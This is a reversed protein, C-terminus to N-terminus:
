FIGMLADALRANIKRSKLSFRIFRDSLGQFNSCNRILIKRQLLQECVGAADLHQPLRALLFYTASPFLKLDIKGAITDEFLRREVYFFDRSRALFREIEKQNENLYLVAEHALANVSWPLQYGVFSRMLPAPAIIFGVRLGPIRFIKSMSNLVIVNPLRAKVLTEQEAERVFPLYSEDIVFRTEPHAKALKEVDGAAMLAGTPNVPNCFFVTDYGRVAGNLDSFQPVFNDAEATAHYAYEVGHMQCASAYDAYAPGVILARKVGIARPIAYIFQTTGNGALVCEPSVGYQNAVAQTIRKSDVEPLAIITDMKSALHAKLGEPPGLPNLNSSMDIIESADCGLREAVEHINGGHGIIM